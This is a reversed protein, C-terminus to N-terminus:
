LMDRWDAENFMLMNWTPVNKDSWIDVLGKIEDVTTELSDVKETLNELLVAQQPGM